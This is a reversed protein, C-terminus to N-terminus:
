NEVINNYLYSRLLRRKKSDVVAELYEFKRNNYMYIMCSDCKYKGENKPDQTWWKWNNKNSYGQRPPCFKVILKKKCEMCKVKLHPKLEFINKSKPESKINKIKNKIKM